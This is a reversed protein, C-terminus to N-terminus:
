DFLSLGLEEESEEKVPAAKAAAAAAAPAAAAAAPAPAAFAQPNKLAEKLKDVAPFSADTALALSLLKKYGNVLIHPVAAITPVNAAMSLAAVNNIGKQFVKLIDEDSIDLMTPEFVTGNDYVHHVVCGYSFPTINLTTLLEAESAGVRDGEKLLLVDNVIEIAGKV